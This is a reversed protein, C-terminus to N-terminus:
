WSSSWHLYALSLFCIKANNEYKVTDYKKNTMYFLPLDIHQTHTHAYTAYNLAYKAYEAYKTKLQM